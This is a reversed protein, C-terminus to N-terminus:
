IKVESVVEMHTAAIENNNQYYQAGAPIRVKVIIEGSQRSKRAAWRTRYAHLGDEVEFYPYGVYVRLPSKYVVGPLYPFYYYPSFLTGTADPAILRKYAIIDRKAVKLYKKRLHKKLRRVSNGCACDKQNYKVVLCM